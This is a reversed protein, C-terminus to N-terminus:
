RRLTKNVNPNSLTIEDGFVGWFQYLFVEFFFFEVSLFSHLFADFFAQLCSSLLVGFVFLFSSYFDLLHLTFVRSFECYFIPLLLGFNSFMLCWVSVFQALNPAFERYIKASLCLLVKKQSDPQVNDSQLGSRWFLLFFM